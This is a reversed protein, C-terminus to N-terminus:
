GNKAAKSVEDEIGEKEKFTDWDASSKVVTSVAKPGKLLELAKDISSMAKRKHELEATEESSQLVTKQVRYL